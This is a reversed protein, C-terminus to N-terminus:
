AGDIAAGSGTLRPTMDGRNERGLQTLKSGADSRADRSGGSCNSVSNRRASQCEKVEVDGRRGM